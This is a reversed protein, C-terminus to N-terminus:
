AILNTDTYKQLCLHSAIDMKIQCNPYSMNIEINRPNINTRLLFQM